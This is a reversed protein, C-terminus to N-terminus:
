NLEQFSEFDEPTLNERAWEFVQEFSKASQLLDEFNNAEHNFTKIKVTTAINHAIKEPDVQGKPLTHLRLSELSLSEKTAHNFNALSFFWM